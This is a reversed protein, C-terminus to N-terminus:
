PAITVNFPAFVQQGNVQVQCYLRLFGPKPPYFRFSLVPGGRLTPDTAETGAPHLHIVTHGDDYFGVLHAFAAMVPELKTMPQGNATSVTIFLSQTQGARPAPADSNEWELHFNLGAATATTTTSKDLPLATASAGPLDTPPYEQIGTATPVLDAFVRYATPVRPTFSFAYEGPLGTPVPHEHHYDALAPDIILLHIPQTHVTELESLLVPSRDGHSLHITVHAAHNAVLPAPDTTATLHLTPEGPPTYVFSYPIRRPLLPMGCKPCPASASTLAVDPHMPCTFIDAATTAADFPAALTHLDAHFTELSRTALDHDGAIAAQALTTLTVSARVAGTAIARSSEPTAATPPLARLAPSCLSAQDPIEALRDERLLRDLNATALRLVNWAEPATSPHLVSDPVPVHARVTTPPFAIFVLSAALLLALAPSPTKM